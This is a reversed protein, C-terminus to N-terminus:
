RNKEKIVSDALDLLRDKFNVFKDDPVVNYFAIEIKESAPNEFVIEYYTGGLKDDTDASYSHQWNNTFEHHFKAFLDPNVQFQIQKNMVLDQSLWNGRSLELLGDNQLHISIDIVRDHYFNYKIYYNSSVQGQVEATEANNIKRQLWYESYFLETNSLYLYLIGIIAFFLFLIWKAIKM